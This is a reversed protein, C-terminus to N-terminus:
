TAPAADASHNGGPGVHNRKDGITLWAVAASVHSLRDGDLGDGEVGGAGEHSDGFRHALGIRSEGPVPARAKGWLDQGYAKAFYKGGHWGHREGSQVFRRAKTCLPGPPM